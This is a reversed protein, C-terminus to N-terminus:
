KMNGKIVKILDVRFILGKNPEIKSNGEAGYALSSPIYLMITDGPRVLQLGEQWGEILDKMPVKTPVGLEYSSDFKSGNLFRSEYNILVSDQLTPAAEPSNGRVIIEYQLGSPTTKINAKKKNEAFFRIEEDSNDKTIKAIRDQEKTYAQGQLLELLYAQQESDILKGTSKSAKMGQYVLDYNLVMNIQDLSNAVAMGYAYSISDNQTRLFVKSTNTQAFSISAVLALIVVLAIRVKM